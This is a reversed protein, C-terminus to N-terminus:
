VLKWHLITAGLCFLLSRDRLKTIKTLKGTWDDLNMYPSVFSLEQVANTKFNWLYFKVTEKMKTTVCLCTEDYVFVNKITMETLWIPFSMSIYNQFSCLHLIQKKQNPISEIRIYRVGVMYQITNNKYDYVTFNGVLKIKSLEQDFQYVIVQKNEGEVKSYMICSMEFHELILKDTNEFINELTDKRVNFLSIVETLLNDKYGTVLICDPNSTPCIAIFLDNWTHDLKLLRGNEYVGTNASALAIIGGSLVAVDKYRYRYPQIKFEQCYELIGSQSSKM